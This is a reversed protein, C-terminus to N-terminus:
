VSMRRVTDKSSQPWAACFWISTAHRAARPSWSQGAPANRREGLAALVSIQADSLRPFGGYVDPTEEPDSM